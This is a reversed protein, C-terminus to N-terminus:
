YVAVVACPCDQTGQLELTTSFLRLTPPERTTALLQGNPLLTVTQYESSDSYAADIAGTATNYAALGGTPSPGVAFLTTRDSSLCVKPSLGSANLPVPYSIAQATTYGQSPDIIVAQGVAPNALFLLGNDRYTMTPAAPKASTNQLGNVPETTAAGTAGSYVEITNAYSFRVFDGSPLSVVPEGNVPWPGPAPLSYRAKGEGLSYAAIIPGSAAYTAGDASVTPDPMTWVYVDSESAVAAVRALTPADDLDFPGAFAGSACDFYALEHHTTWDAAEMPETAGTSPNPKTIQQSNGPTSVSIVIALTSGNPALAPTVLVYSEPSITPLSLTGEAVTTGSM